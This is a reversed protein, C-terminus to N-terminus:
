PIAGPTRPGQWWALPWDSMAKVISSLASSRAHLVAPYPLSCTSSCSHLIAKWVMMSANGSMCSMAFFYPPLSKEGPHQFYISTGRSCQVPHPSTDPPAPGTNHYPPPPHTYSAATHDSISCCHSSISPFSLSHTASHGRRSVNDNSHSMRCRTLLHLPVMTTPLLVVVIDRISMYPLLLLIREGLALRM